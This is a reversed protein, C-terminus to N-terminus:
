GCRGSRGAADGPWPGRRRAPLALPSPRSGPERGGPRGVRPSCTRASSRCPACRGPCPRSSCGARSGFCSFIGAAATSSGSDVPQVEEQRSLTSVLVIRRGGTRAARIKLCRAGRAVSDESTTPGPWVDEPWRRGSRWRLTRSMAPSRKRDQETTAASDSGLRHAFVGAGSESSQTEGPGSTRRAPGEGRGGECGGGTVPMGFCSATSCASGAPGTEAAAAIWRGCATRCTGTCAGAAAHRAGPMRCANLQRDRHGDGPPAGRGSSAARARCCPGGPV